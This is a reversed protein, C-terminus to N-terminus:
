YCRHLGLHLLPLFGLGLSRCKQAITNYLFTKGTGAGGNLFFVTGKSQFVSSAIANYATRQGSNLREIDAQVDGEQVDNQLQRHELILRNGSIESWNGTSQPMPPFDLLSKGSEQLLENLLYMGYDEVQAETPSPILFLARIKHALDDCIHVSFQKWLAFPRLPFCQTLIVCFLRRLQYGTNMVAAEQLCQIWEDDDELLGRAVCALKFSDYLVNNVTRLCEFSKTGKVVTLLLRM